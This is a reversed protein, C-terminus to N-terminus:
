RTLIYQVVNKIEADNKTKISEHKEERGDIKITPNTTIQKTVAAEGDPKGKYKEAVSKFSPGDKKKDVAHCKGCENKKILAQAADVNVDAAWATGICAGWAAVAAVLAHKSSLSM